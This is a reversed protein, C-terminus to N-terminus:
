FPDRNCLTWMRVQVHESKCGFYQRARADAMLKIFARNESAGDCVIANVYVGHLRLLHLGEEIISRLQLADVGDTFFFGVPYGFKVNEFTTFNVQTCLL